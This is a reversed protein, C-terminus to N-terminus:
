RARPWKKRKHSVLKLGEKPEWEGSYYRYLGAFEAVMEYCLVITRTPHNWHADSEGCAKGELGIPASWVFANSAYKALLELLGISKLFKAYSDLRDKTPADGYTVKVETKPQDEARRHPKLAKDWGWSATSWDGQCTGQREDPMKVQNALKEYKDPNSGVMLCIIQYARQKDLGHEDYFSLSQGQAQNRRDAYFWGKTAEVLVRDTVTNGLRLMAVTAFSDAADEERGLVYLYMDDIVAHGMEHTLVYLLNGVTFIADNQLQERSIGQLRPDGEIAKVAELVRATFAAADEAAAAQEAALAPNTQAGAPAPNSQAGAPGVAFSLICLLPGLLHACRFRWNSSASLMKM